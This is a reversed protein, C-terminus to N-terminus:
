FLMLMDFSDTIIGFYSQLSVMKFCCRLSIFLNLKESNRNNAWPFIQKGRKKALWEAKEAESEAICKSVHM